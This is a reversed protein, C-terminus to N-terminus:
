EPAQVSRGGPKDSSADPRIKRVPQPGHGSKTTMKPAAQPPASAPRSIPLAVQLEAASAALPLALVLALRASHMKFPTPM